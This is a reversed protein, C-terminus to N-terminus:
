LTSTISTAVTGDQLAHPSVNVIVEFGRLSKEGQCSLTIVTCSFYLIQSCRHGIDKALLEYKVDSDGDASLKSAKALVVSYKINFDLLDMSLGVVECQPMNAKHWM